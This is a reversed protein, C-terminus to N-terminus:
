NINLLFIIKGFIFILKLFNILKSIGSEKSNIGKRSAKEEVSNDENNFSKSQSYFSSNNRSQINGQINRPMNSENINFNKYPIQSIQKIDKIEEESKTEAQSEIDNESATLITIDANNDGDLYSEAETENGKKNLRKADTNILM